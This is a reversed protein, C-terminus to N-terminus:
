LIRFPIKLPFQSFLKKKRQFIMLHIEPLITMQSEQLIRQCLKQSMKLLIFFFLWPIRPHIEFPNDWFIYYPIGLTIEPIRLPFETYITSPIWLPLRSFSRQSTFFATNFYRFFFVSSDITSNEFFDIFSSGLFEMFIRKKLNECVTQRIASVVGQLFRWSRVEGITEMIRLKPVLM